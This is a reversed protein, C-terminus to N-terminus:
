LLWGPHLVRQGVGSKGRAAILIPRFAQCEPAHERLSVPAGIGSNM